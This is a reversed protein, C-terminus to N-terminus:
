RRCANIIERRVKSIIHLRTAFMLGAICFLQSAIVAGLYM